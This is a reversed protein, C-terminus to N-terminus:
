FPLDNDDIAPMPPKPSAPNRIEDILSSCAYYGSGDSETELCAQAYYGAILACREREAALALAIADVVDKHKLMSKLSKAEMVIGCATQFIDEPIHGEATM